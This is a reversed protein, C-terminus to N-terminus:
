TAKTIINKFKNYTKISRVEGKDVRNVFEQIAELMENRQTLLESPLIECKQYTNGADCILIAHSNYDQDKNHLIYDKPVLCIAELDDNSTYIGRCKGNHTNFGTWKGIYKPDSISWNGKSINLKEM